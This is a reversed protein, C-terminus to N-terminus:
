LEPKSITVKQEKCQNILHEKAKTLENILSDMKYVANMRDIPRGLYGHLNIRRDCSAILIDYTGNYSKGNLDGSMGIKIMANTDFKLHNLSKISGYPKM